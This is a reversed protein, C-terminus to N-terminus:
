IEWEYHVLYSIYYRGQWREVGVVWAGWDLEFEDESHSRYISYFNVNEYGEPLWVHGATAGHLIENCGLLRAPLLNRELRPYVQEMFSGNMDFGTGDERGWYHSASSTFIDATEDATFRVAPNWWYRHITLGHEPHVLQALLAGDKDAVAARFDTLLALVDAANCFTEDNVMETLYFSNVWGATNGVAIPLWLSGGVRRGAGTVRINAADPSLEATVPNDVGAGSRVNLTDDDEVFAVRYSADTRFSPAATPALTVTPAPTPTKPVATPEATPILSPTPEVTLTEATPTPTPQSATPPATSQAATPPPPDDPALATQCASLGILLILGVFLLFQKPNM